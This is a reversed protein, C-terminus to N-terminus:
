EFDGMVKTNAPYDNPWICPVREDVMNLTRLTGTVEIGCYRCYHEQSVGTTYWEHKTTPPNGIDAHRGEALNKLARAILRKRFTKNM